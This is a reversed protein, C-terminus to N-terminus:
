DLKGVIARPILEVMHSGAQFIWYGPLRRKAVRTFKGAQINELISERLTYKDRFDLDLDLSYCGLQRKDFSHSDSDVILGPHDFMVQLELIEQESLSPMNGNAAEIGTFSERYRKILKDDAQIAGPINTRCAIIPIGNEHAAKLTKNLPQCHPLSAYKDTALFLLDLRQKVGDFVDLTRVEQAKILYIPKQTDRNVYVTANELARTKVYRGDSQYFLSEFRSDNTGFNVFGIGDLGASEVASLSRTLSQGNWHTALHAHFDIKM